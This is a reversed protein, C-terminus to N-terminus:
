KNNLFHDRDMYQVVLDIVSKYAKNFEPILAMALCFDTRFSKDSIFNKYCNSLNEQTPQPNYIFSEIFRKCAPSEKLFADRKEPTLPEISRYKFM